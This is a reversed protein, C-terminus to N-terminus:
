KLEADRVFNSFERDTGLIHNITWDKLYDITKLSLILNGGKTEARLSKVKGRFEDHETIHQAAVPYRYQAFMDEETSFHYHTYDALRTFISDMILHSSGSQNGEYLENIIELLKKHQEDIPAIGIDYASKWTLKQM